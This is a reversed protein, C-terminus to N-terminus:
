GINNMVTERRMFHNFCLYVFPKIDKYDFEMFKRTRLLDKLWSWFSLEGNKVFSFDTVEPMVYLSKIICEKEERYDKGLNYLYWIYPLNVGAATVCIANGDNRFNIEMFYDKGDRGRLFELSFLGSYNSNRLFVRSADLVKDYTKNLAEYHLFGTNTTPLPRLVVSVGPIIVEEGGKLSLGILQYEFTKEILQQIQVTSKHAARYDSWEEESYIRRIDDKAGDKSVLPKIIWPLPINIPVDTETNVTLSLPVTIGSKMALNLMLEKNMLYTIEGQHNSGPLYFYSSLEDYNQDLLSSLEDSCAIVVPKSTISKGIERLRKFVSTQTPEIYLKGIYRSTGVYPFPHVDTRELIVIPRCGRYGLSRIVGLTNHHNSGVIVIPNM